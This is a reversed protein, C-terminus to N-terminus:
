MKVVDRWKKLTSTETNQMQAITILNAPNESSCTPYTSSWSGDERCTVSSEGTMIMDSDTCQFILSHKPKFPPLTGPFGDVIKVHILEEVKCTVETFCLSADNLLSRRNWCVSM